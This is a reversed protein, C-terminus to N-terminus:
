AQIELFRGDDLAYLCTLRDVEHRPEDRVEVRIEDREILVGDTGPPVVVADTEPRGGDAPPDKQDFDPHTGRLFDSFRAGPAHLNLYRLEADAANRFGHVVLPPAFALTGAPLAREKREPGVLLTLEGALVYFLDSHTHHVHPSAGDRYPGFRTWTAVLTDRDCLIEVRREPTDGVVENKGAGAGAYGAGGSKPPETSGVGGGPVLLISQGVDLEM